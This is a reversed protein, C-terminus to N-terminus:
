TDVGIDSNALIKDKNNTKVECEINLDIGFASGYGSAIANIITASGLSKVIKKM